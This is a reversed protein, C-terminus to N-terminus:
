YGLLGPWRQVEIDGARRDRQGAQVLEILVANPASVSLNGPVDASEM